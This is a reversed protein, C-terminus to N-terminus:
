ELRTGRQLWGFSRVLLLTGLVAYVVNTQEELGSSPRKLSCAFAINATYLRLKSKSTNQETGSNMPLLFALFFFYGFLSRCIPETGERISPTLYSASVDAKPFRPRQAVYTEKLGRASYLFFILYLAWFSSSAVPSVRDFM